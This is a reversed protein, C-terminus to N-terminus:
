PSGTVVVNWTGTIPAHATLDVVATNLYPDPDSVVNVPLPSVLNNSDDYVAVQVYLAETHHELTLLGAALDADVFSRYFVPATNRQVGPFVIFTQEVLSGASTKRIVQDEGVVEFLAPSDPFVNGTIKVITAIGSECHFMAVTPEDNRLISSDLLLTFVRETAALVANTTAGALLHIESYEMVFTKQFESGEEPDEPFGDTFRLFAQLTPAGRLLIRFLRYPNSIRAGDEFEIIAGAGPNQPDVVPQDLYNYAEFVVTGFCNTDATAPVVAVDLPEGSVKRNMVGITINGQTANIATEVEQWTQVFIGASPLWPRWVLYARTSAASEASGSSLFALQGM